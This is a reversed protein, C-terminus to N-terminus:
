TCALEFLCSMEMRLSSLTTKVVDMYDQGAKYSCNIYLCHVRDQVIMEHLIENQASVPATCWTLMILHAHKHIVLCHQCIELQVHSVTSCIPKTDLFNLWFYELSPAKRVRRALQCSIYLNYKENKIHSSINHMYCIIKNTYVTMLHPTCSSVSIFLLLIKLCVSNTSM